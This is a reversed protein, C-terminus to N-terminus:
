AILHLAGGIGFGIRAQVAVARRSATMVSSCYIIPSSLRPATLVRNRRRPRFHRLMSQYLCIGSPPMLACNM